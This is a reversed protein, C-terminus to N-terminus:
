CVVHRALQACAEKLHDDSCDASGQSARTVLDDAEAWRGQSGHVRALRQLM